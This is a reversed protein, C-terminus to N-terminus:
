VFAFTYWQHVILHWCLALYFCRHAMSAHHPTLMFSCLSLPTGNIRPSTDAYFSVFAFTYRQNVTLHWCLVLCFCCHVMSARHPELMFSSLSMYSLPTNNICSLTHAYFSRSLSLPVDNIFEISCAPVDAEFLIKPSKTDAHFSDFLPLTDDFYSIFSKSTIEQSTM